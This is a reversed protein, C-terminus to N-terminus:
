DTIYYLAVGVVFAGALLGVRAAATAPTINLAWTVTGVAAVATAGAGAAEMVSGGEVFEMESVSIERM